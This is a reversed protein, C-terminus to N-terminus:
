INNMVKKLNLSNKKEKKDELVKKVLVTPEDLVRSIKVEKIRM